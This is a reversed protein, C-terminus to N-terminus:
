RRRSKAATTVFGARLSHGSVRDINEGELYNRKIILAIAHGTLRKSLLQGHRNVFCFLAGSLIKSAGLWDRAARVPCTM